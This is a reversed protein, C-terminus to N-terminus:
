LSSRWDDTGWHNIVVTKSRHIEDYPVQVNHLIPPVILKLPCQHEPRHYNSMQHLFM